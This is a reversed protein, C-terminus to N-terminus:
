AEDIEDILAQYLTLMDRTSQKLYKALNCAVRYLAKYGLCPEKDCLAFFDETSLFLVTCDSIAKITASREDKEVLAKQGFFINEEASLNYVAFPEGQITTRLVQVSGELLIYLGRSIDGKKFIIDNASFKEEKLISFVQELIAINEETPEEFDCFIEIKRLKDIILDAQMM